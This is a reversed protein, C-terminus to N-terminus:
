LNVVKTPTDNVLVVYSAQYSLPTSWETDSAIDSTIIQGTAAYVTIRDGPVLGRVYLMGGFSYVIYERKGKSDTMPFGGIRVAFRNNHTGADLTAEYDTDLLNITRKLQYDILWVYTYGEFAKREPLSFAFTTKDMAAPIQVGLPIDVETPAADLLSIRSQRKSDMLYMQAVSDNTLWKMGDRGYTYSVQKEAEHDPIVTLIDSMASRRAAMRIIPRSAKQNMGYYPLHFIVEERDSTTATQTFFAKGMSMTAGTDWSRATLMQDGSSVDEGAGDMHYFVHPIFMQRLYNDEELVTDTRYESVLWPLGKMNWGMDEQRTFNLESGSGAVCHDYQTLYISKDAEEETYVYQGSPAYSTFRLVTDAITSGFDMLYGDTASRNITDVPLWLSSNTTQFVYDKQSRAAGSYQYTNFTIPSLRFALSDKASVYKTVTIDDVNYRFPFATMSYRQNIFRKEAAVYSLQVNHGNGYFSAGPKLLLFGPRLVIPYNDFDKFDNDEAYQMTMVASDMLYVVSGPHPYVNGGYHTTFAANLVAATAAM